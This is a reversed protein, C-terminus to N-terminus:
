YKSKWIVLIDMGNSRLVTHIGLRRAVIHYTFTLLYIQLSEAIFQMHKIEFDSIMLLKYLEQLELELFIYEDLICMIQRSEIENWFNDDINNNKWFSFQESTIFCIAHRPYKKKLRFLVTQAIGDLWIKVTSYPVHPQFYQAVITLQKEFISKTTPMNMFKRQKHVIRYQKLYYFILEFSYKLTFDSFFNCSQQAFIMNIEDWVFYYKVSNEAISCFIHELQQKKDTDYLKYESILFTYQQLKQVCYLGEKLIEEFDTHHFIKERKERNYKKKATSCRQYYKKEWFKNSLTMQEFRKCTSKFNVIDEFSVNEKELIITVAEDPLEIITAM